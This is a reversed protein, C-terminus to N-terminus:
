SHACLMQRVRGFRNTRKPGRVLTCRRVRCGSRTHEPLTRFCAGNNRFVHGVRAHTNERAAVRHDGPKAYVLFKGRHHSYGFHLWDFNAFTHNGDVAYTEAAPAALPMLFLMTAAVALRM